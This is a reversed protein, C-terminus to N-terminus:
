GAMLQMIGALNVVTKPVFSNLDVFEPAKMGDPSSESCHVNGGCPGLGDMTPFTAALWNGDSLGGRLVGEVAYGCEAGGKQWLSVLYESGRGCPAQTSPPWPAIEALVEIEIRCPFGDSVASVSGEGALAVVADRTADLTAKDYCRAELQAGAEHPVRNVVSGGSVVGVNVTLERSHDTLQEVKEVVRALERIANAGRAHGGGAHAGRGEVKLRMIVRGKRGNVLKYNGLTGSDGEFVLCAKTTAPLIQHCVDGFQATLEEEAANLIVIWRVGAFLEPYGESIGKLLLWIMVTGGKIDMVGPGTVRGDPGEKWRFDNQREEEEPFVTDLHSILAIAPKEEGGGSDLVLHDGSGPVDCPHREVTFGPIENFWAIIKEANANVGERNRTFSNIGVLEQLFRRCEPMHREFLATACAADFPSPSM